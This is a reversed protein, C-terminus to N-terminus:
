YKTQVGKPLLTFMYLGTCNVCTAFKGSTDNIGHRHCNAVPTTSEPPLNAAPITSVPPLNAVPMLLVLSVPPFIQGWHYWHHVKVQSYRRSNEFFEEEEENIQLWLM